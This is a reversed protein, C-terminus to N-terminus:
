GYRRETGSEHQLVTVGSQPEVGKMEGEATGGTEETMWVRPQMAAMLAAMSASPSGMSSAAASAAASFKRPVDIRGNLKARRARESLLHQCKDLDVLDKELFETTAMFQHQTKLEELRKELEEIERKGQEYRQLRQEKNKRLNELKGPLSTDDLIKSISGTIFRHM